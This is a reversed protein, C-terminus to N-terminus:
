ELGEEYRKERCKKMGRVETLLSIGNGEPRCYFGGYPFINEKTASPYTPDAVLIFKYDESAYESYWLYHPLNMKLLVEMKQAVDSNDLEMCFHSLYQKLISNDIIINRCQCFSQPFDDEEESEYGDLYDNLFGFYEQPNLYVREYTAAIMYTEGQAPFLDEAGVVGIFNISKIKGSLFYGSDDYVIYRHDEDNTHGIVLVVHQDNYVIVPLRSELHANLVAIYKKIENKANAGSPKAYFSVPIRNRYFIDLMDSYELGSNPIPYYRNNEIMDAISLRPTKYAHHLFLSFMLMDAHACRIFVTDQFYFPITKITVNFGSIHVTRDYTMLWADQEFKLVGWNPIIFSLMLHYDPLPRLTVYGLYGKSVTDQNIRGNKQVEKLDYDWFHVRMVKNSYAYSTNAYHLAHLEKWTHETYSEEVLFSKAQTVILNFRDLLHKNFLGFRVQYYLDKEEGDVFAPARDLINEIQMFFNSDTYKEFGYEM